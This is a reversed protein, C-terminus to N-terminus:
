SAGQLVGPMVHLEKHAHSSGVRPLGYPVIGALPTGRGSAHGTIRGAQGPRSRHTQAGTGSRGIAAVASSLAM